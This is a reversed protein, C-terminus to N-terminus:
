RQKRVRLRLGQSRVLDRIEDEYPQSSLLGYLRVEAHYKPPHKREDIPGDANHKTKHREVEVEVVGTKFEYRRTQKDVCGRGYTASVFEVDEDMDGISQGFSSLADDLCDVFKGFRKEDFTRRVGLSYREM